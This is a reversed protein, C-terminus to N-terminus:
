LGIVKVPIKADILGGDGLQGKIDLGWCFAVESADLGCSQTGANASISAGDSAFGLVAVPVPSGSFTGDGLEGASGSGWCNVAGTTLVACSHSYGSSIALVGFIGSVLAPVHSDTFKGDGLEGSSNHGWCLATGAADLACSFNDGVSIQVVKVLGKVAVPLKSDSTSGDGLQGHNNKGWCMVKGTKLLACTHNPGTAIQSVAAGLGKVAVPTDSQNTTGDGLQGEGNSGWCFALGNAQVACSHYLTVNVSAVGSITSVLAAQHAVKTSGDGIEGKSNDGWCVLQGLSTVACGGLAASVQVVAVGALGAVAVATKHVALTSGGDGVYQGWCDARLLGTIACGTLAGASIGNASGAPVPLGVVPTPIDRDARTGDGISGWGSGRGWCKVAASFLVVCAHSQGTTIQEPMLNGAAAPSIQTGFVPVPINSHSTYSGNGLSGFGRSNGWCQLTKYASVRACTFDQGTSVQLVGFNLGSVQTPLLKDGTGGYGLEGDIGAGWCKLDFSSTLVACTDDQGTAVSVVDTGARGVLVPVHSDTRNGIGLQGFVNQGWCYLAGTLLVACAHFAGTSVTSVGTLGAVTVPTSSNATNGNGLEGFKNYGWCQVQRAAGTVACTFHFGASIQFAQLGPVMIPRLVAALKKGNGLEGYPDSGWCWVQDSVAQIACSHEGGAAVAVAAPLLARVPITIRTIAKRGSGLQGKDDRGWCFVRGDPVVACTHNGTANASVIPWSTAYARQAHGGVALGAAGLALMATLTAVRSTLRRMRGRHTISM